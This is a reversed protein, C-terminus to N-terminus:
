YQVDWVYDSMPIITEGWNCFQTENITFNLRTKGVTVSDKYEEAVRFRLSVYLDTDGQIESTANGACRITRTDKDVNVKMKSFLRSGSRYGDEEYYTLEAPYTVEVIGAAIKQATCVNIPISIVGDLGDQVNVYKGLGYVTTGDNTIWYPKVYIISKFSTSKIGTIRAINFVKAQQGFVENAVYENTKGDDKRVIIKSYVKEGEANKKYGDADKNGFYVDFGVAQYHEENDVGSVLRLNGNTQVKQHNQAKVSLVYAPVFKAYLTTGEAVTTATIQTKGDKDEFWGGFVYGARTPAEKKNFATVANKVEDTYIIKDEYEYSTAAQSDVASLLTGTLVTATVLIGAVIRKMVEIRKM